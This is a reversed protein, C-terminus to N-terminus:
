FRYIMGLGVSVYHFDEVIDNDATLMYTADLILAVNRTAYFEIGGGLRGTIDLEWTSQSFDSELYSAGVGTVIFPQFRGFPIFWRLNLTTSMSDLNRFGDLWEYQLEVALYRDGRYGIRGNAGFSDGLNKEPAGVVLADIIDANAYTGGAGLYFGARDYDDRPVRQTERPTSDEEKDVYVSGQEIDDAQAPHAAILAIGITAIFVERIM